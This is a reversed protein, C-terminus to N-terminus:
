KHTWKAPHNIREQLTGQYHPFASGSSRFRMKACLNYRGEQCLDCAECPVGCEVAVKDGLQFATVTSGVAVIEGAAEHGLCLPERVTISGNRYHSFYHLDSGCLTVSRIAIQVESAEPDPLPRAELQLAGPGHLYQGQVLDGANAISAM